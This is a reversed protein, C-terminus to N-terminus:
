RVRYRNDTPPTLPGDAFSRELLTRLLIQDHTVSKAESLMQYNDGGEAIFNNTVVRYVRAPDLPEGGVLVGLLKPEDGSAVDLTLGSVELGTHATGEVAQRLTAELHVGELELLVPHNGFPLLEFLDRRTVPGRPLDCRIGGRNQFACDADFHARFADAILNGAGSSEVSSRARELPAALEGIVEGM